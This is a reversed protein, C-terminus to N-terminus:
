DKKINDVVIWKYIKDDIEKTGNININLENSSNLNGQGQVTMITEMNSIEISILKNHAPISLTRGDVTATIESETGKEIIIENEATGKEVTISVDEEHFQILKEDVYIVVTQKGSYNGVYDDRTIIADDNGKNCSYTIIIL